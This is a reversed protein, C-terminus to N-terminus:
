ENEGEEITVIVAGGKIPPGITYTTVFISDDVGLAQAIGDQYYKCSAVANDADIAHKTKPRFEWHLRLKDAHIKVKVQQKTLVFATNKASKAAKHKVTWHRPRGNPSLSKDPWPLTIPGIM